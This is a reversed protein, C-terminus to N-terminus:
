ARRLFPSLAGYTFLAMAGLHWILSTVMGASGEDVAAAAPTLAATIMAFFTAHVPSLLMGLVLGAAVTWCVQNGLKYRAVWHLCRGVILGAFYFFFFILYGSSIGSAELSGFAFGVALSALGTRALLWPTTKVAHSKFKGACCPCRFGVACQVM